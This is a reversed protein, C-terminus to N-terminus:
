EMAALRDGLSRIDEPKVGKEKMKERYWAVNSYTFNLVAQFKQWQLKRLIEVPLYDPTNIANVRSQCTCM